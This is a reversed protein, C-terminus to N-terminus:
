REAKEKIDFVGLNGETKLEFRGHRGYRLKVTAFDCAGTAHCTIYYAEREDDWLAKPDDLEVGEPFHRRGAFPEEAPVLKLSGGKQPAFYMVWFAREDPKIYVRHELTKAVACEQAYKLYAVFDRLAQEQRSSRISYLFVPSVAGLVVTM